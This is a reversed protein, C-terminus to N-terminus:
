GGVKGVEVCISCEPAGPCAYPRHGKEYIALKKEMLEIQDLLSIMTEPSALALLEANGEAKPNSSSDMALTLPGSPSEVEIWYHIGTRGTQGNEYRQQRCIRKGPTAKSAANRIKDREIPTITTM